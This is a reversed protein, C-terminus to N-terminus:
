FCIDKLTCFESHLEYTKNNTNREVDITGKPCHARLRMSVKESHYLEYHKILCMSSQLWAGQIKIM